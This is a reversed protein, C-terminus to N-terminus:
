WCCEQHSHDPHGSATLCELGEDVSAFGGLETTAFSGALLGAESWSETARCSLEVGSNGLPPPLLMAEPNWRCFNHHLRGPLM